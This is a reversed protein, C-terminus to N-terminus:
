GNQPRCSPTTTGESKLLEASEASVRRAWNNAKANTKAKIYGQTIFPNVNYLLVCFQGGRMM